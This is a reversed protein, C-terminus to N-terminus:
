NRPENPLPEKEKPTDELKSDMIKVIAQRDYYIKVPVNKIPPSPSIGAFTVHRGDAFVITSYSGGGIFQSSYFDAIIGEIYPYNPPGKPPDSGCGLLLLVLIFIPISRFLKM